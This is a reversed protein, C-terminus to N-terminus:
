VTANMVSVLIGLVTSVETIYYRGADVVLEQNRLRLFQWAEGTTVCGWVTPLPDHHQENFLRAAVMQAACQPLGEEIDNKKAEVIVILPARLTPSPQAKSLIFDCEGKLGKDSDVDLRVGSYLCCANRLIEQCTLLM